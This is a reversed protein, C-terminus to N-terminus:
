RTIWNQIKVASIRDFHKTNDTVLILDNSIACCAILLDFDDILQGLKRLSAKQRAFVGLSNGIPIVQIDQCFDSVIRRVKDPENSCEAGYLLELLTIESIFCNEIGASKIRRDLNHKGRM